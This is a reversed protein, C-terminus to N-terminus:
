WDFTSVCNPIQENTEYGASRMSKGRRLEFLRHALMIATYFRDDHMMHEKEKSLAYTVSTKEPNTTKHISTIENKMVDISALAMQEELSLEYVRRKEEGSDTTEYFSLIEKGDWESPFRIVGLEMLEIFEEVMQKRWKKPSLLILKNTADPYRDAYGFYADCENDILGRHERGQVDTWSNLLADAYTSMGGGGSGLDISISDVFEYDPADGNYQLIMNRLIEIQRNSDLKYKLQNAQDVMNFCNVIDGCLGMQPDEYMRMVSVISNDGVRAPDFALAFKDQGNGRLMPVMTRENRRITAWKIIQSAGGDMTPKNYYERLGKARNAKIAADIKSQTLLPRYPRGKMYTHLAVDCTMDCVFYRRDGAIMKKAFDKYHKYFLKTMEDQSSAYVLQTPIQRPKADINFGEETSTKFDMNQSAFAECVTILEDSCFAAEDFFVLTARRSRASDPNSNLTFIESGNWFAVKYGNMAHSFGDRQNDRAVENEAIDKLSEISAATKGARLIIEEIKNFTEKAQDGVSSIIYIAQNPYLIAKLIMFVAGLFSKGFNRSCVWVSHSANWTEELIYKQSDLLQIGLLDEAAICPNRRYFNISETDLEYMKRKAETMIVKAMPM